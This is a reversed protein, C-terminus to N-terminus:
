KEEPWAQCIQEYLQQNRKEIEKENWNEINEFQFTKLGKAHQLFGKYKGKGNKKINWEKNKITKNLRGNLITKNGLMQIYKNREDENYGENLPWSSIDWNIPMIHELDYKKLELLQTSDKPDRLSVELLYLIGKAQNNYLNEKMADKIKEDTPMNMNESDLSLNSKLSELTTCKNRILKQALNKYSKNNEKCIMRRILYKELYKFIANRENKDDKQEKLIFLFYPIFTTTDLGFFILNLKETIDTQSDTPENVIDPDLNDYFLKALEMIEQIVTKKADKFNIKKLYKKFTAFLDHQSFKFDSKMTLYSDFFLDLISRQNAGTGIITNWFDRIEKTKEFTNEWTEIYFKEDDKGSFLYNKILDAVTLRVGLSNITDFIQQEDEEPSLDIPVFYIYELVDKHYDDPNVKEMFYEYAKLVNNNAYEKKLNDNITEDFIANFIPADNRNHKLCIEKQDTDLHYRQKFKELQGSKKLLVYAFLFLTTFRQQGDIVLQRDIAGTGTHIQKMIYSGMFYPKPDSSNNKMDDLFREWNEETWVYSRQFFPIELQRRGHLIDRITKNDRNM